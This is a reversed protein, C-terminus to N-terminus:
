ARNIDGAGTRGTGLTAYTRDAQPITRHALDLTEDAANTGGDNYLLPQCEFAPWDSNKGVLTNGAATVDSLAVVNDCSLPYTRRSMM